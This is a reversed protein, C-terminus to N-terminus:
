RLAQLPTNALRAGFLTQLLCARVGQRLMWFGQCDRGVAHSHSFYRKEPPHQYNLVQNRTSPRDVHSFRFAHNCSTFDRPKRALHCLSSAPAVTPWLRRLPSITEISYDFATGTQSM